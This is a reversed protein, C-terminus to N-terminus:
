AFRPLMSPSKCSPSASAAKLRGARPAGLFEQIQSSPMPRSFLFGQAETCGELAVRMLQDETEIGEATAVMGLSKALGAAARIIAACDERKGLESVFARDIKLKDFPFLRLNDLSSYGTGFDDMAIRIGMARLAHLVSITNKTEELMITETIEVELRHGSMGSINLANSVKNLLDPDKLQAASLNVAVKIDSPWKAAERCAEHFVWEGIPVILGLDEALEIFEGPAVIGRAPRNWRLLAEFSQVRRERVTVLPQFYLVLEKNELARRLDAELSRRAQMQASMEKRFYSYSGRGRAKSCYLALDANRILQDADENEASIAIGVSAGVVISNGDISYPASLLAIIRESLAAAEAINEHLRQIVAFEDGGLRAVIDGTRVAGALRAGAARLLADGIPHGLSDNVSKFRDLDLYLVAFKADKPLEDTCAELRERFTSRNPLDTLADHRAMHAMKAEAQRLETIDEHTSVWGGGAMRQRKIFIIRGDKLNNVVTESGGPETLRQGGPLKDTGVSERYAAQDAITMGPKILESPLKYLEAFHENCVILAGCADFMVLGQRMNQLAVSFREAQVAIESQARAHERSLGLAYNASVLLNIRRALAFGGFLFAAAAVLGGFALIAAQRRWDVLVDDTSMTVVIVIPFHKARQAAIIRDVGDIPSRTRIGGDRGAFVLKRFVESGALSLGILSDVHPYRALHVGDTRTMSISGHPGLAIEAYLSEINHLELVGIVVGLFSGDPASIRQGLTVEWTGTTPSRVPKSLYTSFPRAGRLAAIYDRNALDVHPIPGPRVRNLLRGDSSVISINDIDPHGAIRERMLNQVEPGVAAKKLEALNNATDFRDVVGATVLEISQFTRDAQEAIVYALNRAHAEGTALDKNRLYISLGFAGLLGLVALLVSVGALLPQRRLDAIRGIGVRMVRKWMTVQGIRCKKIATPDM